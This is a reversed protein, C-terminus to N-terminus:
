MDGIYKSYQNEVHTYGIREVLVKFDAHVKSHLVIVDVGLKKLEEEAFKFLKIGVMKGRYEKDIYLIDNTAFIHDMYHLNPSVISVFYGILKRKDDRATVMHLIGADQMAQYLAYDPNLKIKDKHHAIEEWHLELLPIMEEIVDEFREVQYTAM